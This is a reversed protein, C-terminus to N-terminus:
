LATSSLQLLQSKRSQVQAATGDDTFSCDRTAPDSLLVLTIWILLLCIGSKQQILLICYRTAKAALERAAQSLVPSVQDLVFDLPVIIVLFM